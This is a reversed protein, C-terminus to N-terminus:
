SPVPSRRAPCGAAALLRPGRDSAARIARRLDSATLWDDGALPRFAAVVERAAAQGDEHGGMGDAVLSSPDSPM